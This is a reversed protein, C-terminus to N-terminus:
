IYKALQFGGLWRLQNDVIVGYYDVDDVVKYVRYMDGLKAFTNQHNNSTVIGVDGEKLYYRNPDISSLETNNIWHFTGDVARVVYAIGEWKSAVTGVSGSPTGEYDVITIVNDGPRFQRYRV